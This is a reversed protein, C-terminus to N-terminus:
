DSLADSLWAPMAEYEDERSEEMTHEVVMDLTDVTVTGVTGGFSETM